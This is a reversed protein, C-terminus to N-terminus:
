RGDGEEAEPLNERDVRIRILDGASAGPACVTMRVYEPTHGAFWDRGKEPCPEEILIERESGILSEEFAEKRRASMQLLIRSREAKVAETLQGPM